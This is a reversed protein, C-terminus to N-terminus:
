DPVMFTHRHLLTEDEDGNVLELFLIGVAEHANQRLPSEAGGVDRNEPAGRDM